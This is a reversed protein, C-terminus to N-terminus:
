VVNEALEKGQLGSLESISDLLIHIAKDKPIGKCIVEIQDECFQALIRDASNDTTGDNSLSSISGEAAATVSDRIQAITEISSQAKSVSTM